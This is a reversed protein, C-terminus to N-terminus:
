RPLPRVRPLFFAPWPNPMEGVPVEIITPGGADFGKRLAQRLEDPTRARLGQAGFAEALKVFDPNRLESGIVRNGYSEKQMRLVNGYAGDNFVLTVAAIGHQVATALEQITFLFGGDGTISLVPKGPHAVKVGLATAFGWGLTGQYGTSIFTRPKYVPLAFRSIYSVQTMEEVFFGDEPLEERIIKLYTLQPELFAYRGATETKLADLEERRSRRPSNYREVAPILERLAQRSDAVIGVAPSTIRNHETPDIDIRIVKLADDYGWNMLPAQLRTGIALVVDAQEWLQHAEPVRVSLYHRSNM